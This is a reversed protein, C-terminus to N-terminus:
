NGAVYSVYCSVYCVKSINRLFFPEFVKEVKSMEVEM